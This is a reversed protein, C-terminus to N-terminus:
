FFVFERDPLKKFKNHIEFYTYFKDSLTVKTKTKCYLVYM